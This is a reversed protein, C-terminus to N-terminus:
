KSESSNSEKGSKIKRETLLLNLMLIGVGVVIMADAFNFIYSWIRVDVYDIVHGYVIRDYLNGLAGTGIMGLALKTWRDDRDLQHNVYFIVGVSLIAAVIFIWTKGALLGFAAGPNLVYTLHFVNPIIAVSEGPMFSNQVAVKLIRDIAWGVIIILWTLNDVSGAIKIRYREKIKVYPGGEPM